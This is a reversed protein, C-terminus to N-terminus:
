SKKQHVGLIGARAQNPRSYADMITGGFRASIQFEVVGISSLLIFLM